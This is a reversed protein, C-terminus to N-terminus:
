KQKYLEPWEAAYGAMSRHKNQFQAQASNWDLYPLPVTRMEAKLQDPNRGVSGLRAKMSAFNDVVATYYESILRKAAPSKLNNYQDSTMTGNLLLNSYKNMPGVLPLDDFIGTLLGESARDAVHETLVRMADREGPTLQATKLDKAYVNMTDLASDMSARKDRNDQAQKASLKALNDPDIGLAKAQGYSMQARKGDPLTAVVESGQFHKDLASKEADTRNAAAVDKNNQYEGTSRLGKLQEEAQAKSMGVFSKAIQARKQESTGEGPISKLISDPVTGLQDLYPKATAETLPAEKEQGPTEPVVRDTYRVDNPDTSSYATEVTKKYNPNPTGDELKERMDVAPKYTYNDKDTPKNAVATDRALEAKKLEAEQAAALDAKAGHEKVLSNLQTGPILAMTSPAVVNGAINGATALGHKLKGWFGPQNAASGEPNGKKLEALKIEAEARDLSSTQPSRITNQLQVVQDKFQKQVELSQEHKMAEPTGTYQPTAPENKGFISKNLMARGLTLYDGKQAADEMDKQIVKDAEAKKAEEKTDVAPYGARAATAENRVQEPNNGGSPATPTTEPAPQLVGKPAFPSPQTVTPKNSLREMAAPNSELSGNRKPTEIGGEASMLRPQAPEELGAGTTNKMDMKPGGSPANDTNMTAGGTMENKYEPLDTDLKPTIGKPNPIVKSGDISVQVGAPQNDFSELDVSNGRPVKGGFGVNEQNAHEATYQKNEQPTLVREGGQAVILKHEDEDGPVDGGDDYTLEKPVTLQPGMAHMGSPTTVDVTNGEADLRQEGPRAGYRMGPHLKDAEVPAFDRPALTEPKQSYQDVMRQKEAFAKAEEDEPAALARGQNYMTSIKDTWSM